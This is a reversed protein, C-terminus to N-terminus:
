CGGRALLLCFSTGGTVPLLIARPVSQYQVEPRSFQSSSIETTKLWRTRPLKNCCGLSVLATSPVKPVLFSLPGANASCRRQTQCQAFAERLSQSDPTPLMLEAACNVPCRLWGSPNPDNQGKEPFSSPGGSAAHSAWVCAPLPCLCCQRQLRSVGVGRNKKRKGQLM